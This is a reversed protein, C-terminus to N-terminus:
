KRLPESVKHLYQLIEVYSKVMSTEYYPIKNEKCFNQTIERAHKLKNRSMNPFLHHEIQYNLGGYWYDTIIGPRVNRATLIQLHLYDLEHNKKPTLMGKHNPAFVSALYFGFIGQHIIIFIIAYWFPLNYFLFTFYALFSIVIGFIELYKKKREKFLFSISGIQLATAQFLIIFFFYFAQYKTIFRLIGKKELAQKESFAIWPTEIDPDFGEENPHAHHTNHKRLWYNRSIGILIFMFNGILRNVSRKESLQKHGADHAIFALQTFIFALFFANLILIWLTEKFIVVISLSFVLLVFHVIVNVSQYIPQKDLLHSIEIQKRLDKYDTNSVSTM